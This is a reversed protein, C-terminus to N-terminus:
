GRNRRCEYIVVGRSADVVIDGDQLENALGIKYIGKLIDDKYYDVLKDYDDKHKINNGIECRLKAYLDAESIFDDYTASTDNDEENLNDIMRAVEDTTFIESPTSLDDDFADEFTDFDSNYEICDEYNNNNYELNSYTDFAENNKGNFSDTFMEDDRSMCDDECSIINEYAYYEESDLYEFKSGDYEDSTKYELMSEGDRFADSLDFSDLNRSGDEKYM